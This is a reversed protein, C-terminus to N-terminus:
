QAASLWLSERQALEFFTRNNDFDSAVEFSTHAIETKTHVDIATFALTLVDRGNAGINNERKLTGFAVVQLGLGAGNESVDTLTAFTAKDLGNAHIRLDLERTTLIPGPYGAAKMRTIMEDALRVGLESVWPGERRHEYTVVPFAGFTAYGGSRAAIAASFEALREGVTIGSVPAVISAHAVRYGSDFRPASEYTVHPIPTTPSHSDTLCGVAAFPAALLLMASRLTSM